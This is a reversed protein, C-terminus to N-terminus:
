LNNWDVIEVGEIRKFHETNSTLVKENHILATAAIYVDNIEIRDGEQILGAMIEGAKEAIVEDVPILDLNDIISQFSSDSSNNLYKGTALEMFTASSISHRTDPVKELKQFGRGQDIDILVSSDIIM